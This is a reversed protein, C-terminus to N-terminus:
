RIVISKVDVEIGREVDDVNDELVGSQVRAELVADFLSGVHQGNFALLVLFPYTHLVTSVTLIPPAYYLM